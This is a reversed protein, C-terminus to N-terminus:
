SKFRKLSRWAHKFPNVAKGGSDFRQDVLKNGRDAVAQKFARRLKKIRRQSM